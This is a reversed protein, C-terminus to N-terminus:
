TTRAADEITPLSRCCRARSTNLRLAAFETGDRIAQERPASMSSAGYFGDVPARTSVYKAQEPEAITRTACYGVDGRLVQVGRRHRSTASRNAMTRGTRLGMPGSTTPGTAVSLEAGAQTM